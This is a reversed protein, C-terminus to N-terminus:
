NIFLQISDAVQEGLLDNGFDTFHVGDKKMIMDKDAKMVFSYLDNVPIGLRQVVKKSIANYKIVDENYRSFDKAEEHAALAKEDNVPTTTAWIVVCEPWCYHIYKIMREINEAYLEESVVPRRSSFPINKIDHLGSNLHIIDAQRNKIWRPANAILHVTHQTNEEPGWIETGNSLYLGVYPQYGKRISDGLLTIKKNKLKISVASSSLLGTVLFGTNRIFKRRSYKSDVM